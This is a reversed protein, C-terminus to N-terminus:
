DWFSAQLASPSDQLQTQSMHLCCCHLQAAPPPLVLIPVCSVQTRDLKSTASEKTQELSAVGGPDQLGGLLLYDSCLKCIQLFADVRARCRGLVSHELELYLDKDTLHM